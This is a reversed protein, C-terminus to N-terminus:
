HRFPTGRTRETIPSKRTTPEDDKDLIRVKRPKGSEDICRGENRLLSRTAAGPTFCASM